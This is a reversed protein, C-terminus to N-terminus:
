IPPETPGVAPRTLLSLDRGWRSEIWPGDLGYGTATGVVSGPEHCTKSCVILIVPLKYNEKYNGILKQSPAYYNLKRM